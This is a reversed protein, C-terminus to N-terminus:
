EIMQLLKAMVYRDIAKSSTISYSYGNKEWVAVNAMDQQSGKLTLTLDWVPVHEIYSYETYDGSIDGSGAAKRIRIEEPTVGPGKVGDNDRYIVEIMTDKIARYTLDTYETFLSEPVTFTFGAAAEADAMAACDTFPNALSVAGPANGSTAATEPAAAAVTELAGEPGAGEGSALAPVASLTMMAALALILGANKSRKM